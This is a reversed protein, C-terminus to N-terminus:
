GYKCINQPCSTSFPYFTRCVKSQTRSLPDLPFSFLGNHYLSFPYDNVYKDELYDLNEGFDRITFKLGTEIGMIGYENEYDVAM